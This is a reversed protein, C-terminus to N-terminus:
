GRRAESGEADAGDDPLAEDSADFFVEAEDGGQAQASAGAAPLQRQAAPEDAPRDRPPFETLQVQLDAGHHRMTRLGFSIGNSKSSRGREFINLTSARWTGPDMLLLDREGKLMQLRAEDGSERALDELARLTEFQPAADPRMTYHINYIGFRSDAHLALADARFQDLAENAENRFQEAEEAHGPPRPKMEIFRQIWVERNADIESLLPGPSDYYRDHDSDMTGTFDLHTMSVKEHNQALDRTVGLAFPLRLGALQVGGADGAQRAFGGGDIALGHPDGVPAALGASFVLRQQAVKGRENTVRVEGTGDVYSQGAQELRAALSAQPGVAIPRGINGPTGVTAAAAVGLEGTLTETSAQMDAVILKPNRALLAALPDPYRAGQDDLLDDWFVLDKFAKALNERMQPLRGPERRIRLVVGEVDSSAAGIRGGLTARANILGGPTRWTPGVALGGEAVEGRRVGTTLQLGQMPHYIEMFAERRSYSDGRVSLLSPLGLASLTGNINPTALGLSGGAQFASRTRLQTSMIQPEILRVLDEKGRLKGTVALDLGEHAPQLDRLAGHCLGRVTGDAAGPMATGALRRAADDLLRVILSSRRIERRMADKLRPKAERLQRGLGPPLEDLQQRIVARLQAQLARADRWGLRRTASPRDAEKLAFRALAETIFLEDPALCGNARSAARGQGVADLLRTAASRTARDVLAAATVVGFAPAAEANAKVATRSFPTKTRIPLLRQMKTRESSRDVWENVTKRLRQNARDYASGPANSLFGQRVARLAAVQLHTAARDAQPHLAACAAQQAGRLWAQVQPSADDQIAQGARWYARVDLPDAAGDAPSAGPRAALMLAETGRGVKSMLRFLSEVDHVAPAPEGTGAATRGPGPIWATAPHRLLAELAHRARGADGGTVQALGRSITELLAVKPIAEKAPRDPLREALRQLSPALTAAEAAAFGPPRRLMAELLAQQAEQLASDFHKQIATASDKAQGAMSASMRAHHRLDLAHHLDGVAALGESGPAAKALPRREALLGHLRNELDGVAEDLHGLRRDIEGASYDATRRAATQLRATAALERLHAASTWSELAQDAADLRAQSDPTRARQHQAQAAGQEALAARIDTALAHAGTDLIVARDRQWHRLTGIGPRGPAPPVPGGSTEMTAVRDMPGPSLCPLVTTAIRRLRSTKPRKMESPPIAELRAHIARIAQAAHEVRPRLAEPTENAKRRPALPHVSGRQPRDSTKERGPLGLSITVARQHLWKSGPIKM